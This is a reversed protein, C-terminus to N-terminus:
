CSIRIRHKIKSIIEFIRVLPWNIESQDNRQFIDAHTGKIGGLYDLKMRKAIYRFSKDLHFTCPLHCKIVPKFCNAVILYGGEETANIMESFTKIPDPVHELVDMAVICGYKGALDNVFSLQTYQEVIEYSLNTPYPELIDIKISHSKQAVLRSLTCFGGGFDLIKDIGSKVIWDSIINRHGISEKHSEAFLGNLLWVPHQYYKGIKEENFNINNCGLQDWVLDMLGWIEELEIPWKGNFPAVLKDLSQIEVDSLYEVYRDYPKTM